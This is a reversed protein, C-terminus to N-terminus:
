PAPLIELRSSGRGGSKVRYEGFSSILLRQQAFDLADFRARLEKLEETRQDASGHHTHGNAVTVMPTIDAVLAGLVNHRVASLSQQQLANERASLAKLLAKRDVLEIDLDSAIEERERRIKVLESEIAAREATAQAEMQDQAHVYVNLVTAGIIRPEVLHPSITVSCAGNITGPCWYRGSNSVMKKGCKGCRLIGSLLASKAATKQVGGPSTVARVALLTDRDLIPTWLGPVDMLPEDHRNPIAANSWRSMMQKFSVRQWEGGSSTLVGTRNWRVVVGRVSAGALLDSAAKKILESEVPHLTQMSNDTWGFPRWNSRRPKGLRANGDLRNSVREAIREAEAADVDAKIRAVMRGDATGLDDDGSVITKIEIGNKEYLRIWDELELPRRTLRSNSYCLVYDFEKAWAAKVMRGYDPRDKKSRASAGIDNDQYRTVVQWGERQARGECQALQDSVGIQTGEADDSIRTYIVARVPKPTSM